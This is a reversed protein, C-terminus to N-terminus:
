RLGQRPLTPAETALRELAFRIVSSKTTGVFGRTRLLDVLEDLRRLDEMYLSVSVVKWDNVAAAADDGNNMIRAGAM